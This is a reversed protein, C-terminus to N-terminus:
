LGGFPIAQSRALTAHLDGQGRLPARAEEVVTRWPILEVEDEVRREEEARAEAKARREEELCAELLAAAVELKARLTEALDQVSALQLFDGAGIPRSSGVDEGSSAFIAPIAEERVTPEEAILPGKGLDSRPQRAPPTESAEEEINGGLGGGIKAKAGVLGKGSDM